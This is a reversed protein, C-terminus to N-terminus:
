QYVHDESSESAVGDNMKKFDVPPKNRLGTKSILDGNSSAM